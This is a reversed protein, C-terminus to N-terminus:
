LALIPVLTHNLMDSELEGKFLKGLGKRKFDMVVMLQIPYQMLLNQASKEKQSAEIVVTKANKLQHHGIFTAMRIKAEDAETSDSCFTYLTIESDEMQAIHNPINMSYSKPNNFDSVIGINRIQDGSRDCKFALIPLQLQKKLREAKTKRIIDLVETTQETSTVILDISYQDVYENLIKERDGIFVKRHMPIEEDFSNRIWVENQKKENHYPSLNFESCDDLVMGDKTTPIDGHVHIVNVLHLEDGDTTVKGAYDVVAKLENESRVIALVNM